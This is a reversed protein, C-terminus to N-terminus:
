PCQRSAQPDRNVLRGDLKASINGSAKVADIINKKLDGLVTKNKGEKFVEFGSFGQALYHDTAISYYRAPSLPNDNADKVSLVRRGEPLSSDIVAKLGSFAIGGGAETLGEELMRSIDRGRLQITALEQDWPFLSYITGRTIEGRFLNCRMASANLFGIDARAHTRLMDTMANGLTSEERYVHYDRQTLDCDTSGIPEAMLSGLKENYSGILREVEPDGPQAGSEILSYDVLKVRKTSSEIEFEGKGLFAGNCGAQMITTRGVREPTHLATHSHGGVIISIEPFKEAIERDKEIGCHSLVITVDAGMSKLEPLYKELSSEPSTAGVAEADERYSLMKISDETTLGVIGIKIGDIERIIFPQTTGCLGSDNKKNILNAALVPAGTDRLREALTAVGNDFDHNGLAQADYGMTNMSDLIPRGKFYDSLLYGMTTDGADLVLTHHPDRRREDRIASALGTIGGSTGEKERTPEVHGHIDNTFLLKLPINRSAVAPDSNRPGSMSGTSLIADDGAAAQLPGSGAPGAKQHTDGPTVGFEKGPFQPRIEM